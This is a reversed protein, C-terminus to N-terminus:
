YSGHWKKELKEEALHEDLEARLEDSIDYFKHPMITSYDAAIRWLERNVDNIATRRHLSAFQDMLILDGKKFIIHDMYKSRMIKKYLKDVFEDRNVVQRKGGPPTYWVKRIFHYSFYIYEEDTHPHKDVLERIQGVHSDMVELEPDGEKLEMMTNNKYKFYCTINSYYDKDEQSFDKWVDRTNVISLATDECPHECYLGILIKKIDRRSNGNSHWGLEKEGFMGVKSGDEYKKGTVVFIEPHEKPNMWLKPTEPEGFRKMVKVYDAQTFFQEYFFVPKGTQIEKAVELLEDDSFDLLKKNSNSIQTTM